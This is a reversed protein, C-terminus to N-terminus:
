KLEENSENGKNGQQLNETEAKRKEGQHRAGHDETKPGREAETRRKAGWQRVTELVQEALRIKEPWTLSRRHKQWQAQRRLIQAHDSM